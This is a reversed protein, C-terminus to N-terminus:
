ALAVFLVLMMLVTAKVIHAQVQMLSLRERRWGVYQMLTVWATWLLLGVALTQLVLAKVAGLGIGAGSAFAASPSLPTTYTSATAGIMTEPAPTASGTSPGGSVGMVASVDFGGLASLYTAISTGNGDRVSATGSSSLFRRLGGVGVLHAGALLGSPTILVGGVTQGLYGDLNLNKIQSWQAASYATVAQTQVSPRSLFDAMNRVGDKGTWSGRWDNKATGDPRYYGAEALAPEGMQYLGLYGYDNRAGANNGSEMRALRGLYDAYHGAALVIGSAVVWTVLATCLAKPDLHRRVGVDRSGAVSM